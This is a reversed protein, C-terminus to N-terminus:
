WSCDPNPIWYAPTNLYIDENYYGDFLGNFSEVNLMLDYRWSFSARYQDPESIYTFNFEIAVLSFLRSV